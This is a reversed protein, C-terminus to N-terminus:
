HMKKDKGTDDVILISGVMSQLKKLCQEAIYDIGEADFTGDIAIGCYQCIQALRIEWEPAPHNALLVMLKTHNTVEKNLAILSEPFFALNPHDPRNPHSNDAM